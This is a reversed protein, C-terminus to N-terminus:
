ERVEALALHEEWDKPGDDYSDIPTNPSFLNEERPVTKGMVSEIAQLLEEGRANFFGWFDDTRLFSAGIRHSDLIKDMHAANVGSEKELRRLYISPARGGIKRNTSAALATKNIISNFFDQGIGEEEEQRKCWAQPFVHHIDIKGDFFTQEEVPEGKVFDRSGERMLLAYVGKYAASNRTRLTLLRSQQFNADRITTPENGGRKVWDTVEPLDRAFLTETPGSYIEGFIGCWFWSAIKQRAGETEAESGLDAFIAAMPIVQTQYPLDKARFIKQGHLFRAAMEYGKEVQDAFEKYETLTLRLIDRRKCSITGSSGEKTSLLTLAQLFHDSQLNHLVQHGGKLRAERQAWNDRLLYNDAAFSATLLEFVNLPVGGTNVKEFVLCVAEKPTNKDLKIVPVQYQEFRKIVEREFENFLKMKDRDFDWYECYEQRWESSYLVANVPFFDKSFENQRSSLDLSVEGRFTKILKDKPISFVADERDVEKSTCKKMDFYYWRRVKKGKADWTKVPKTAVLSQFLSTLRQQGDLVLIGPIKNDQNPKSGEIPRPKFRIDKGGNELTMVAGIPFSQSISAILSRIHEDDWVWGRQFDPLQMAGTAAQNLMEQLPNKSSDFSSVNM